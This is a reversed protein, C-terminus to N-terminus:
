VLCQCKPLQIYCCIDIDHRDWVGSVVEILNFHLLDCSKLHLLNFHLVSKSKNTFYTLLCNVFINQSSIIYFNFRFIWVSFILPFRITLIIQCWCCSNEFWSRFINDKCSKTAAKKYAYIWAMYLLQVLMKTSSYYYFLFLVLKKNSYIQWFLPFKVLGFISSSTTLSFKRLFFNWFHLCFMELFKSSSHVNHAPM